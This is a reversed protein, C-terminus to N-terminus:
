RESFARELGRAIPKMLYRLVSKAGTKIEANVVMGPTLSLRQGGVDAATRDLALEAIFYREGTETEFSTPSIMSVQGKIEGFIESDFTTVRVFAESGIVIHGIDDPRVRVEAKVGDEVPVITAVLGGPQVVGGPTPTGLSHVVGDIPSRVTLRALVAEEAAIQASVDALEADIQAAERAWEARRAAIQQAIEQEVSDAAVAASEAQGVVALLRSEAEATVSRLELLSARSAAGRDVLDTRIKLQETNAEIEGALGAAERRKAAAEARKQRARSLASQRDAELSEREADFLSLNSMLLMTDLSADQPAEMRPANALLALFRAASLQLQGRRAKLRSLTSRIEYGDLEVLVQGRSVIDGEDAPVEAVAGGNVHRVEVVEAETAIVGQAVAAERVPAFALIGLIAVIFVLLAGLFLHARRNTREIEYDLPALLPEANGRQRRKDGM